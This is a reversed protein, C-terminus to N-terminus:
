KSKQGLSKKYRRELDIIWKGVQNNNDKTLEQYKKYHEIANPFDYLYLDYLIGLNLHAFAYDSDIDIAKNYSAKSKSFNGIKRYLIGIQNLAYINNPNIRLAHQFSNEAENLSQQKLLLIGLNLHANSINPQQNIVERFLSIAQKSQGEKMASLANDYEPSRESKIATDSSAGNPISSCGSFLLPAIIVLLFIPHKKNLM